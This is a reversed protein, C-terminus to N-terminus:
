IDCKLYIGDIVFFVVCDLICYLVVGFVQGFLDFYCDLKIEMVFIFNILLFIVLNCDCWEILCQIIDKDEKLLLFIVSLVRVMEVIVLVESDWDFVIVVFGCFLM